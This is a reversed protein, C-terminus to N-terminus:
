DSFFSIVLTRTNLSLNVLDLSRTWEKMIQTYLLNDWPIHADIVDIIIKIPNKKKSVSIMVRHWLMYLVGGEHCIKGLSHDDIENTM